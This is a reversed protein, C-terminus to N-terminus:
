ESVGPSPKKPNQIKNGFFDKGGTDLNLLSSIDIGSHKLRSHEKLQFFKLHRLEHPNVPLLGEPLVLDPKRNTGTINGSIKENGTEGTWSAYQTQNNLRFQFAVSWWNNGFFRESRLPGGSMLGEKALLINNLFFFRSNDYQGPIVGLAYGNM